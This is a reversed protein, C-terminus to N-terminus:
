KTKDNLILEEDIIMDMIKIALEVATLEEGKLNASMTVLKNRKRLFQKTIEM